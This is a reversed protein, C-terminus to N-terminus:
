MYWEILVTVINMKGKNFWTGYSDMNDADIQCGKIPQNAANLNCNSSDLHGTFESSSNTIYCNDATYLGM